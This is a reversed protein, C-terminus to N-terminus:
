KEILNSNVPFCFYTNPYPENALTFHWWEKNYPLFGNKTMVNRLISRNNFQEENLGPYDFSAEEGFYDYSCGMDVDKGIEINFLTLDVTSGSSHASKTSVFGMKQLLEKEIQPYFYMKMRIDNEDNLWSSIYDSAIQPRYADFIKIKYGMEKVEDSVQKLAEATEKTVIAYPEEYGTFREGIFNYTTYYRMELIVDPVVESLLVFGSSDYEPTIKNKSFFKYIVFVVIIFALILVFIKLCLNEM